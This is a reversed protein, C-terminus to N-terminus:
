GFLQDNSGAEDYVDITSGRYTLRLAGELPLNQGERAKSHFKKRKMFENLAQNIRSLNTQRAV